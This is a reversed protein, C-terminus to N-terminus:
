SSSRKKAKHVLFEAVKLMQANSGAMEANTIYHGNVVLTPVSTVGLAQVYEDARKVRSKVGFSEFAARFKKAAIGHESFLKAYDDESKLVQHQKHIANFIVTHMEDLVGLAKEAYYVKADLTWLKGFAAPVRRFHVYSPQKKVWKNLKPDLHFCHPCHYWFIETVQIKDPQNTPQPEAMKQYQEGATYPADAAQAAATAGVSLFVLAFIFVLRHM